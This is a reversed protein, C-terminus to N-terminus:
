KRGNSNLVRYKNKRTRTSITNGHTYTKKYLFKGEPYWCYFAGFSYPIYKPIVSRSLGLSRQTACSRTLLVLITSNLSSCISRPFYASPPCHHNQHRKSSIVYSCYVRSSLPDDPSSTLRLASFSPKPLWGSARTSSFRQDRKQVQCKTWSDLSHFYKSWAQLYSAGLCPRWNGSGIALTLIKQTNERRM